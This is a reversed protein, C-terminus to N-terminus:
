DPYVTWGSEPNFLDLEAYHGSWVQVFAKGFQVVIDSDKVEKNLKQGSELIQYQITM